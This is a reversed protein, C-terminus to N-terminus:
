ETDAVREIRDVRQGHGAVAVAVRDAPGLGVGAIREHQGVDQAGVGVRVSRQGGVGFEGFSYPDECAGVLVGDPIALLDGVLDARQEALVVRGRQGREGIQGKGDGDLDQQEGRGRGRRGLQGHGSYPSRQTSGPALALEVDGGRRDQGAQAGLLQVL